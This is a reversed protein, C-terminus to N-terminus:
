GSDLSSVASARFARRSTVCTTLGRFPNPVLATLFDIAAQDRQRSTSLYRAPIGDLEIEGAQNGGGTTLDWGSSGAYGAEVLWEGPLERQVSVMYRMNQGNHFDVPVFRGTSVTNLDLGLATNPGLSAGVPALAGDPFPNSLTARLTLGNDLTPVFPTGQSFGPQFNGTIIFPITYIGWGGRVVSKEGLRYAFGARPQFNNKDANWFGRAIGSRNQLNDGSAIRVVSGSGIHRNRIVNALCLLVELFAKAQAHRASQEAFTQVVLYPGRDFFCDIGVAVCLIDPRLQDGLKVIWVPLVM